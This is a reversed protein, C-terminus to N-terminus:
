EDYDDERENENEDEREDENEDESYDESYFVNTVRSPIKVDNSIKRSGPWQRRRPKPNIYLKVKSQINGYSTKYQLSPYHNLFSRIYKNHKIPSSPIEDKKPPSDTIRKPQM